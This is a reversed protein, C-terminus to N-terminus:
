LSVALEFLADLEADTKGLTAGLRIVLPDLRKFEQAFEWADKTYQDSVSVGAEVYERLGTANIAKRIQWPTVVLSERKAQLARAQNEAAQEPTLDDIRWKYQWKGLVRECGDRFCSQTMTDFAPQAIDLLPVVRFFASEEETLASAPCFHNADWEVNGHTTVQIADTGALNLQAYEM